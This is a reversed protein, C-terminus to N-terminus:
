AAPTTKSRRYKVHTWLLPLLSVVVIAIVVLEFNRQVVPINGFLWGAGVCTVTWAIAGTVNYVMFRSYNMAGAGAVFPAFTRVIPVFRALVIAKGGHRQFFAHTRDLHAQKVFRFREGKVMRTALAKGVSYNVSDGAIAAVIIVAGVVWINLSGRAAIAGATFLLSDGPLFPTIVLGTEAFVIAFVIAYTWTGYNQVWRDLTEPLSCFLDLFENFLEM